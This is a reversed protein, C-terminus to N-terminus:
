FSTASPKELASQPISFTGIFLHTLLLPCAEQRCCPPVSAVLNHRPRYTEETMQGGAVEGCCGAAGIVDVSPGLGREQREKRGLTLPPYKHILSKVTPSWDHLVHLGLFYMSGVTPNCTHGRFLGVTLVHDLYLQLSSPVPSLSLKSSQPCTPVRLCQLPLHRDCVRTMVRQICLLCSGQFGIHTRPPLPHGWPEVKTACPGTPPHQYSPLHLALLLVPLARYKRNLEPVFKFRRKFCTQLHLRRICSIPVILVRNQFSSPSM